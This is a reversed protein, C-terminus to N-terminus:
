GITDPHQRASALFRGVSGQLLTMSREIQQRDARQLKRKLTHEYFYIARYYAGEVSLDLAQLGALSADPDILDDDLGANRMNAYMAPVLNAIEPLTWIAHTLLRFMEAIAYTSRPDNPAIVIMQETAHIAEPYRKTQMNFEYLWYQVLWQRQDARELREIFTTIRHGDLDSEYVPGLLRSSERQEQATFDHLGHAKGFIM